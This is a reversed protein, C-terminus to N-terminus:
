CWFELFGKIAEIISLQDEIGALECSSHMAIMPIGMDIGGINAHSTIYPGVTSGSPISSKNIIVKHKIGNDQCFLKARAFLPNDQSYRYSASLKFVLGDGISSAYDKDHKDKYNPHISHAGDVSYCNSRARISNKYDGSEYFCNIIRDITKDLIGSNAGEPLLSGIEEGDFFCAMKSKERGSDLFSKLVAHCGALNDIKPSLIYGNIIKPEQKSTLFLSSYIIDKEEINLVKACSSRIIEKNDGRTLIIARMHEQPDLKFGQNIDRNLHIALNPVVFSIDRLEVLSSKIGNLSKYYVEGACILERDLFTNLIPGGYVETTVVNFGVERAESDIKVKLLPSDTHASAINIGREIDKIYFAFIAGNRKFFYSGGNELKWIDEEKIEKIGNQLLIEKVNEAVHFSTLGKKLFSVLESELM